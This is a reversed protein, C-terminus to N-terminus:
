YIFYSLAVWFILTWLLDWILSTLFEWLNLPDQNDDRTYTLKKHKLLELIKNFGIIYFEIAFTLRSQAYSIDVQRFTSITIMSTYWIIMRGLLPIWFLFGVISWIILVIITVVVRLIYTVSDAV